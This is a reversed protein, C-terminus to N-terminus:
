GSSNNPTFESEAATGFLLASRADMESARLLRRSAISIAITSQRARVVYGTVVLYLAENNPAKVPWDVAVVVSDGRHTRAEGRFLLGSISVNLSEGVGTLPAKGHRLVAYRLKLRLEYRRAGRRGEAIERQLL